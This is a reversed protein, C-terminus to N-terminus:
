RAPGEALVFWMCACHENAARDMCGVNLLGQPWSSCHKHAVLAMCCEDHLGMPWSSGDACHKNAVLDMRSENHGAQCQRCAVPDMCSHGLATSSLKENEVKGSGRTRVALFRRWSLAKLALRAFMNAPEKSGNTTPNTWGVHM